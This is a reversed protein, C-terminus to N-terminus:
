TGVISWFALCFLTLKRTFELNWDIQCEKYAKNEEGKRRTHPLVFEIWSFLTKSSCLWWDTKQCQKNRHPTTFGAGESLLMLRGKNITRLIYFESKWHVITLGGGRVWYINHWFSICRQERWGDFVANLWRFLVFADNEVKEHPECSNFMEAALKPEVEGERM